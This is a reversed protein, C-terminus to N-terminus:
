HLRSIYTQSLEYKYSHCLVECVYFHLIANEM